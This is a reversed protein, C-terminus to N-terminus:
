DDGRCAAAFAELERDIHPGAPTLIVNTVGADVMEDWFPTSRLPGDTVVRSRGDVDGLVVRRVVDGNNEGSM